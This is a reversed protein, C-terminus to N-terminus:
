LLTFRVERERERERYIYIYICVCVYIYIYIYVSCHTGSPIQKMILSLHQCACMINLLYQKKLAM